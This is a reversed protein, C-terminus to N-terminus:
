GHRRAAPCEGVVLNKGSDVQKVRPLDVLRDRNAATGLGVSREIFRGAVRVEVDCLRRGDNEPKGVLDPHEGLPVREERVSGVRGPDFVVEVAPESDQQAVVDLEVDAGAISEAAGGVWNM